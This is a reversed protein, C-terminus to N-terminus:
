ICRDSFDSPADSKPVVTSFEYFMNIQIAQDTVDNIKINEVVANKVYGGRGRMSKLRIGQM